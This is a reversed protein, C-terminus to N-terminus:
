VRQHIHVNDALDIANEVVDHFVVLFPAAVMQKFDDVLQQMHSRVELLFLSFLWLFCAFKVLLCRLQYIVAKQDVEVGKYDQESGAVDGDNVFCGRVNQCKNVKGHNLADIFIVVEDDFFGHELM